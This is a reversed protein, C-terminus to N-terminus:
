RCIVKLKQISAEMGHPFKRNWKLGFSSSNSFAQRVDAYNKEGIHKIAEEIYQVLTELSYDGEVAQATEKGAIFDEIKQKLTAYQEQITTIDATESAISMRIFAMQTEIEGYMATSLDRVPRENQNWKTNFTNYAAEIQELDGTALANEFQELFGPSNEPSNKGSRRKM